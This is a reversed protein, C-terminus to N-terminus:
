ILLNKLLTQDKGFQKRLKSLVRINSIRKKASKYNKPLNKMCVNIEFTYVHMNCNIEHWLLFSTNRILFCLFLTKSQQNPRQPINKKGFWLASWGIVTKLFYILIKCVKQQNVLLYFCGLWARVCPPICAWCGGVLGLSTNVHCKIENFIM